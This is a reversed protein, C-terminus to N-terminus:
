EVCATDPERETLAAIDLANPVPMTAQRLARYVSDKVATTDYDKYQTAALRVPDGALNREYLAQRQGHSDGTADWALKLLAIRDQGDLAASFFRAPNLHALAGLDAHSPTGLLSGGGLIQIVEIMRACAKPFHYRIARVAELSPTLTGWRSMTAQEEVRRVAGRYIELLSLVEGLMEQVHLFTATSASEALEVAIGALLEAKALGRIVGQHGTHHQGTTASYLANAKEVSNYLFVREWPVTVNDFIVLADIEDYAALPHDFPNRGQPDGFPERCVVTVGDTNVPIAFTATYAEDGPRYGPMPFVLIEDAIPVLTGIMKAGHVVIGAATEDVVKLHVTTDNQEASGKSRDTQPNISAHTVFKDHRQCWHHYAHINDAFRPNIDGFFEAASAFATLLVNVFEPARGMLGFTHAASISFATGRQALDAHTHPSCLSLPVAQGAVQRTLSDMLDPDHQLDYLGAISGVPGSMVAHTAVNPIRQGSMWVARGDNLGTRYNLGSRLAM